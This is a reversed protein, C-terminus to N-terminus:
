IREEGVLYNKSFLNLIFVFVDFTEQFRRKMEDDMEDIMQFLTDKAENLDTKQEIYFNM